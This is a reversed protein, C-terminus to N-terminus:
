INSTATRATLGLTFSRKRSNPVAMGEPRDRRVAPLGARPSMFQDRGGERGDAAIATARRASRNTYESGDRLAGSMHRSLDTIGTHSSGPLVRETGNRAPRAGLRNEVAVGLTAEVVELHAIRGDALAQDQRLM